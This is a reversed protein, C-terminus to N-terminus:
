DHGAAGNVHLDIARRARALRSMVTGIPIDLTEAAEKYSFGELVVLSLLSRQEEPLRAMAQRARDLDSRGEVIQVGDEGGMDFADDIDIESGRTKVRRAEDILLNRAIRFMWSDLRTGAIFQGSRSLAREVTAQCLDDGRDPSGALALCFRRLRPLLAVIEDRLDISPTEIGREM